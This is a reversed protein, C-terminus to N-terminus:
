YSLGQRAAKAYTAEVKDIENQHKKELDIIHHKDHRNKVVLVIFIVM